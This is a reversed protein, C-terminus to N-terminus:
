QGCTLPCTHLAASSNRPIATAATFDTSNDDTDTCGGDARLLSKVATGTPGATGEFCSAGAAGVLDVVNTSPCSQGSTISGPGALVVKGGAAPLALSGVVDPTPLSMSGGAGAAEGVLFYGHAAITSGAPIVTQQTFTGTASAIWVSFGGLDVATTGRNFLEVFDNKLTAGSNGGGGYVQSIVVQSPTCAVAGSYTITASAAGSSIVTLGTATVATTLTFAVNQQDAAVIVSTPPAVLAAANTYALPVLTAVHVPLDFVASFAKADGGAMTATAPALSLKPTEQAYDIVRVTRTLTGGVGTTATLTAAPDKTVGTMLVVASTQGALITVTTPAGATGNLAVSAPSTVTVPTDVTRAVAIAVTVPQPFTAARPHGVSTFQGAPGFASLAPAGDIINATATGSLASATDLAKITATGSTAGTALGTTAAANSIAAHANSSSWTVTGTIDATHGDSFAGTAAFQQTQGVTFTPAAPTVDISVLTADTADLTATATLGSAPDTASITSAGLGHTTARGALEPPNTVTATGATVSWTVIATEDETTADSFTGIATYQQSAGSAVTASAPSLALATLVAGGVKLQATGQVGTANDTATVTATGIALTTALGSASVTAATPPAVSWTVEATVDSHSGDSFIGLAAYAQTNGLAVAATAPTLQIAVLTGAHSADVASRSDVPPGDPNHTLADGSDASGGGGCAVLALGLMCVIARIQSSM